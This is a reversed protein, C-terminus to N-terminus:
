GRAKLLSSKLRRFRMIEWQLYVVDAVFMEDITDKCKVTACFNMLLENYADADEGELLVPSGFLALRAMPGTTMLKTKPNSRVRRTTM